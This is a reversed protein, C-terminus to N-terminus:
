DLVGDLGADLWRRGVPTLVLTRVDDAARELRLELRDEALPEALGEGWEVVTVAQDLDTDLDLDDLELAGALRYADVHVLPAGGAEAPHVRAIVFTPSTVEGRVGLGVGLGQVLTTKGAGLGGSLIVLDGPKLRDALRRGLERTDAASPLMCTTSLLRLMTLRPGDRGAEVYGQRRWFRVTEPLEVRAELRLGACGRTAAVLTAREALAAAVGHRRADNLVGVRRLRLLNEEQALLLAGVPRGDLVALLGGHHTLAAAVSEATEELATAPPDLTPRGAFAARITALLVDAREAGVEHVELM